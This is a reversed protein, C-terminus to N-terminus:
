RNGARGLAGAVDVAVGQGFVRARDEGGGGDRQDLWVAWRRAHAAMSVGAGAFLIPESSRDFFKKLADAVPKSPDTM